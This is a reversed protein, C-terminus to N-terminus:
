DVEGRPRIAPRLRACSVFHVFADGV